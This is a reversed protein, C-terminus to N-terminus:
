TQADRTEQPPSLPHGLRIPGTLGPGALPRGGQTIRLRGEAQLRLAEARLPAMLPRWDAALDRAIESPCCTTGPRLGGVRALIAGRLDSPGTM